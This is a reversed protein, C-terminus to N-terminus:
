YESSHMITMVRRTLEPDSPDESGYELDPDFYDIKWFYREGKIAICGFDHEKWPDNSEGWDDFKAIADLLKISHNRAGRTIFWDLNPPSKRFKDNLETIRNTTTSKM